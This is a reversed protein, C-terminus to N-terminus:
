SKQRSKWNAYADDMRQQRGRDQTDTAAAGMSRTESKAATPTKSKDKSTTANGIKNGIKDGLHRVADKTKDVVGGKGSDTTAAQDRNAADEAATSSTDQAAFATGCALALVTVLAPIKM